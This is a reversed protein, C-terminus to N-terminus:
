ALSAAVFLSVAGMGLGVAGVVVIMWARLDAGNEDFKVRLREFIRRSWTLLSAGFVIQALGIAYIPWAIWSDTESEIEQIGDELVTRVVGTLAVALIVIAGIGWFRMIGPTSNSAVQERMSKPAAVPLTRISAANLRALAAPWLIAAVALPLMVSFVLIAMVLAALPM